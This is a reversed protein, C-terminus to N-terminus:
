AAKQKFSWEFWFEAVLEGAESRGESRVRITQVTGTTRAADVAAKIQVGENCTFVTTSKAKKYFRNEM